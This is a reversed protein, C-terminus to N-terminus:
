CRLVLVRLVTAGTAGTAGDGDGDGIDMASKQTRRGTNVVISTVSSTTVPM